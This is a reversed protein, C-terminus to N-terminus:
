RGQLRPERFLAAPAPPDSLVRRPRDRGEESAGAARYAGSRVCRTNIFSTSTRRIWSRAKVQPLMPSAKTYYAAHERRESVMPRPAAAEGAARPRPDLRPTPEWKTMLYQKAGGHLRLKRATPAGDDSTVM